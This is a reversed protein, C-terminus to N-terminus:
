AVVAGIPARALELRFRAGPPGGALELSGGMRRALERGIALGLGFGAEGTPGSGRRFREFILEREQAPVGPGDDSVEIAARKAGSAVAVKVESGAPAIRLANDLLIRLIRAVSAPDGVAWAQGDAGDITVRLGHDLARREFEASVARALEGLEVPESRLEVAADLRSLDLLDSALSALRRTQQQARAVRERADELDIPDRELDDALLELMGDLSTLPTRLEHSANAVFARRADEQRKLRERMQAFARAVEGIEDNAAESAQGLEHLEDGDDLGSTADRLRRLRRVLRSSVFAGVLLAAALGAVAARLFASAVVDTAEDLYDLKRELVLVLRHAQDEYPSAVILLSGFIHSGVRKNTHARLVNAAVQRARATNPIGPDTDALKRFSPTWVIVREAGSNHRLLLAQNRVAQALPGGPFWIISGLGPKADEVATTAAAVATARLRSRLPPLLALAAVALTVVSVFVLALLVRPRLGVTLRSPLSARGDSRPL